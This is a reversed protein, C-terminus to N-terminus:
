GVRQVRGGGRPQALPHACVVVVQLRDTLQRRRAAEVEVVDADGGVM